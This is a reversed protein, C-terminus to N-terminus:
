RNFVRQRKMIYEVTDPRFIELVANKSQFVQKRAQEVLRTTIEAWRELKEPSFTAQHIRFEITKKNFYAHLNLTKYRADHYKQRTLERFTEISMTRTGYVLRALGIEDVVGALAGIEYDLPKCHRCERRNKPMAKFLDEEILKWAIAIQGVEKPPIDQANVHIHFGCSANTSSFKSIYNVFGIVDNLGDDGSLIPSIFEIPWPYDDCFEVSGDKVWGWNPFLNNLEDGNYHNVVCEIEVGYFVKGVINTPSSIAEPLIFDIPRPLRLDWLPPKHEECYFRGRVVVLEGRPRVLSCELCMAFLTQYCSRCYLRDQYERGLRRDIYHECNACPIFNEACKNCCVTGNIVKFAEKTFIDGCRGCQGYKEVLCNCCIAEGPRLWMFHSDFKNGCHCSKM